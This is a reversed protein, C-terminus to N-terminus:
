SFLDFPLRYHQELDVYEDINESSSSTRESTDEKSVPVAFGPPKIPKIVPKTTKSTNPPTTPEIGLISQVIDSQYKSNKIQLFIAEARCLTDDLNIKYSMENIHKLIETLGYDNEMLTTKESDLIAVCILLHFNNCPLNTWLVEWLRMIEMFKFDRKFLILLWRFAFYLNGSDHKELYSCLQSDVFHLLRHLDQLQNKMGQQELEFNVGIKELWGAFCWFAELENQMVVLIPSLLDSMGQVYGLDFNYMCYTMLIDQLMQINPNNEGEYFPHTRDTRSVDKEILSKRERLASFRSEQDAHISMWQLKMRYYDEERKKRILMKDKNTSDFNYFGLLYKWAESRVSHVLGGKFIRRKLSDFNAIRGEPDVFSNWEEITVPDERHVEPRPPFEICTILEFGPEEHADIKVNLINESLMESLHNDTYAQSDTGNGYIINELLYNTVKSFSGMATNYPNHFMNLIYPKSESFLDLESFSKELAEVKPDIVLYLNKEKKSRRFHIYNDLAACLKGFDSDQFQFAPVNTGDKLLFTVVTKSSDSVEIKKFSKVDVLDFKIPKPTQVSKIEVADISDNHNAKFGVSSSVDEWDLSDTDPSNKKIDNTKLKLAHWEIELGHREEIILLKGEFLVEDKLPGSYSVLVNDLVFLEKQERNSM